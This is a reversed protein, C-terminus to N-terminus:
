GEKHSPNKFPCKVSVCEACNTETYQGCFGVFKENAYVVRELGMTTGVTYKGEPDIIKMQEVTEFKLRPIFAM